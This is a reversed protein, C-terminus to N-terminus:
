PARAPVQTLDHFSKMLLGQLSTDRLRSAIAGAADRARGYPPSDGAIIADVTPDLARRIATEIANADEACDFVSAAQPRGKQRVGINVTPTGAAPAEILGSSSNGIVVDAEKLAALYYSPGLSSVLVARRPQLAVHAELMANIVRGGPDANAKTFIVAVDPFRDLAALLARTAVSPDDEGLTAPHYTVLFVRRELSLGIREALEARSPLKLKVLNDLGLAGVTFVRDPSEGMQIVRARFPETAVFHLHALKTIAHRFADDIAGESIEGGHVHAVPLRMLAAAVAAALTEFRDGLLVVIDPRLRDFAEAIGAVGAGTSRAVDLPSDGSLGLPVEADVRFGDARIQDVTHGFAEELHMATAIAQLELAPDSRVAHMFWYFLGYEARTGTVICIRRAM